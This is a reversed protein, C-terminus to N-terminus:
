QSLLFRNWNKILKTENFKDSTYDRGSSFSDNTFLIVVTWDVDAADDDSVNQLIVNPQKIAAIMIEVAMAFM